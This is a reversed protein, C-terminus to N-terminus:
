LTTYTSFLTHKISDVKMMQTNRKGRLLIKIVCIKKKVIAVKYSGCKLLFTPTLFTFNYWRDERHICKYSYAIISEHL